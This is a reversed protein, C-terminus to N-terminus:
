LGDEHEHRGLYNNITGSNSGVMTGGQDGEVRLAYQAEHLEGGKSDESWKSFNGKAQKARTM